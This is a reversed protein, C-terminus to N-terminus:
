KMPCLGEMELDVEASSWEWGGEGVQRSTMGVIRWFLRHYFGELVKLMADMVLWSYRMYIFLVHVLAKYMMAQAGVTAGSTVLVNAM